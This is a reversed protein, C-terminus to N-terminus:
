LQGALQCFNLKEIEIWEQKDGPPRQQLATKLADIQKTREDQRENILQDIKAKQTCM